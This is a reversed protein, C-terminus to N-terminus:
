KELRIDAPTTKPRYLERSEKFGTKKVTLLYSERHMKEPLVLRFRGLSDTRVTTDHDIMVLAGAIFASGDRTQVIGQITGLSNDRRVTLYIQGGDMKYKKGPSALEWGEAVLVVEVEKGRFDSPIEGLNTRGNEGIVPGRLDHGFRVIIQGKNQLEPVPKGDADQVYVTLQMSDGSSNPFINIFNCFEAFGGLIGAVIAVYGMKKWFTSERPNTVAQSATVRDNPTPPVTELGEATWHEALKDIIGHLSQRIKAEEISYDSRNVLGKLFNDKLGKYRGSQLNIDGALDKLGLRKNVVRLGAVVRELDGDALWETLTEKANMHHM